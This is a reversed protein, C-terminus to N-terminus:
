GACNVLTWRADAHFAWTGSAVCRGDEDYFFMRIAEHRCHRRHDMAMEAVVFWTRREDTWAFWKQPGRQVRVAVRELAPPLESAALLRQAGAPVYRTCVVFSQVLLEILLQRQHACVGDATRHQEHPGIGHCAAPTACALRPADVIALDDRPAQSTQENRFRVAALRNVTRM